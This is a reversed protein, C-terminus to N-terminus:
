KRCLSDSDVPTTSVVRAIRWGLGLVSPRRFWWFFCIQSLDVAAALTVLGLDPFGFGSLSVWLLLCRVFTAVLISVVEYPSTPLKSFLGLDISSATLFCFSFLSILHWRHPSSPSAASFHVVEKRIDVDQFYSKSKSPFLNHRHTQSTTALLSFLAKYFFFYGDAVDILLSREEFNV